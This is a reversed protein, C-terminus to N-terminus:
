PNHKVNELEAKVAAFAQEIEKMLAPLTDPRSDLALREIRTALDQVLSAGVNGASSKIPHVAKAVGALNAGDLALRAEAIKQAGYSLFLDTMKRTFEEGGLRRLRDLAAPDLSAPAPM